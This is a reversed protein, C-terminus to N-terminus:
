NLLSDISTVHNTYAVKGFVLSLLFFLSLPFGVLSSLRIGAKLCKLHLYIIPGGM